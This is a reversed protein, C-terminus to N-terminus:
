KTPIKKGNALMSTTIAAATNPEMLAIIGAAKKSKMKMMIRVAIARDLASLRAAAEEPPMSEYAKVVHEFKEDKVDELKKVAAEIQNLIGTYKEIRADVDKRLVNLREEEKKLAEEKEKLEKSKKQIAKLMDDQQQAFVPVAFQALHFVFLLSVIFAVRLFVDGCLECLFFHSCRSVVKNNSNVMNNQASM